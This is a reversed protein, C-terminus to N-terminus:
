EPKRAICSKLPFYSHYRDSKMEEIVERLFHDHEAQTWGLEKPFLFGSFNPLGVCFNERHQRGLERDEEDEPWPGVCMKFHDFNVDVFGAHKLLAPYLDMIM